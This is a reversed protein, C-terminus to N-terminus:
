REAPQANESTAGAHRATNAVEVLFRTLEAAPITVDGAAWAECPRELDEDPIVVGVVLGQTSSMRTLEVSWAGESVVYSSILEYVAGDQGQSYNM